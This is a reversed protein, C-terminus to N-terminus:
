ASQVPTQILQLMERVAQQLGVLMARACVARGVVFEDIYGLEVLPQVNKYNIGHGCCVTLNAKSAAQVATDIRDLESQAEDVTRAETYGACDILVASAGSKAAAKIQDTDPDIFFGVNMGAGTLRSVVEGFDVPAADFEIPAVPSVSDVQDAVFFVMWPKVELAREIFEDVPPMGLSLKTKVVGKLLYLDRQRVYKRHRQLQIMIGDAGALEALVAAQAPDPEAGRGIERFAAVLDLGIMLLPLDGEKPNSQEGSMERDLATRM